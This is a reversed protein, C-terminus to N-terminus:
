VDKKKLFEILLKVGIGTAQTPYIGRPKDYFAPGAIDFHVWPTKGVFEKLFLAATIASANRGASNVIDAIESDLLKRYDAHIPMRWIQEGSKESAKELQTALKDDDTFLGTVEDGLAVLIGGTLTALDIICKPNLYKNSYEIADALALRGEADTNNIEVSKGSLSKYVDGIKYSNGDISNEASTVVGVVNKKIGLNILAEMTGLVCGAGGMDAKMDLMGSTPKLSLGGTDYTIGKGILVIPKEGKKGGHYEVTILRPEISSGRSVALLLGMKEKELKKKDLITTKVKASKKELDKAVKALYSPTVQDANENVLDRTLYVGKFLKEKEEFLDNHKKGVFTVKEILPLSKKYLDFRYNMSLIGDFIGEVQEETFGDLLVVIEKIKNARCKKVLSAYGKRFTNQDKLKDGLGVLALRCIGNDPYLFHIAGQDGKFDGLKLIPDYQEKLEKVSFCEEAQKKGKYFPVAVLPYKDKKNLKEVFVAKM